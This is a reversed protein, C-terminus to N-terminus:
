PRGTLSVTSSGASAEAAGQRDPLLYRVQIRENLPFRRFLGGLELTRLATPRRCDYRYRAYWDRYRQDHGHDHGARDGPSPPEPPISGGGGVEALTGLGAESGVADFRCYPDANPVFLRSGDRLDRLSAEIAAGEEETTPAHEFGVLNAGPAQFELSLVGEDLALDLTGLGHVHPAAERETHALGNGSLYMLGLGLAIAARM